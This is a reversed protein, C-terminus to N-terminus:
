VSAILIISSSVSRCCCCAESYKNKLNKKPYQCIINVSLPLSTSLFALFFFRLKSIVSCMLIPTWSHQILVVMLQSQSLCFCAACDVRGIGVTQCQLTNAEASSCIYQILGLNQKLLQGKSVWCRILRMKYWHSVYLIIHSSCDKINYGIIIHLLGNKKKKKQKIRLHKGNFKPGDSSRSLLPYHHQEVAKILKM